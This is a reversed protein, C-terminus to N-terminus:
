RGQGQDALPSRFIMQGNVLVATTLSNSVTTDSTATAVITLGVEEMGETLLKSSWAVVLVAHRLFFSTASSRGNQIAGLFCAQVLEDM